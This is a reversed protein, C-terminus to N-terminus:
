SLCDGITRVIARVTVWRVWYFAFTFLAIFSLGKMAICLKISWDVLPCSTISFIALVANLSDSDM